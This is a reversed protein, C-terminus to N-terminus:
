FPSLGALLIRVSLFDFFPVLLAIPRIGAEQQNIRASFAPKGGQTTRPQDLYLGKKRVASTTLTPHGIFFKRM